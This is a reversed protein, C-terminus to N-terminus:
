NDKLILIWCESNIEKKNELEGSEIEDLLRLMDDYSLAYDKETRQEEYNVRQVQFTVQLSTHQPYVLM